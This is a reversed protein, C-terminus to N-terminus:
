SFILQLPAPFLYPRNPGASRIMSPEFCEAVDSSFTLLDALFKERRNEHPLEDLQFWVVDEAVSFPRIGWRKSLRRWWAALVVVSQHEALELDLLTPIQWAEACGFVALHVEKPLAFEIIEASTAPEEEGPWSTLMDQLVPRYDTKWLGLTEL